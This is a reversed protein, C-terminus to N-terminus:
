NTTKEDANWQINGQLDPKCEKAIQLLQTNDLFAVDLKESNVEKVLDPYNSRKKETSLALDCIFCSQLNGAIYAMFGAGYRFLHLNKCAWAPKVGTPMDKGVTANTLVLHDKYKDRFSESGWYRQQGPKKCLIVFRIDKKLLVAEKKELNNSRYLTIQTPQSTQPNM